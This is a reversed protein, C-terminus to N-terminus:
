ASEYENKWKKKGYLALEKDRVILVPCGAHRVVGEATGGVTPQSGDRKEHRGMVILDADMARAAELIEMEAIGTRVLIRWRPNSGSRRRALARLKVEAHKVLRPNPYRMMVQGYGYDAARVIPEVVHLLTITAAFRRAFVQAYVLAKESEASFKVPALIKAVRVVCRWRKAKPRHHLRIQLKQYM